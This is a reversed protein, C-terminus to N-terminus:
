KLEMIYDREKIEADLEVDTLDYYGKFGYELISYLMEQSSDNNAMIYDFDQKVLRDIKEERTM